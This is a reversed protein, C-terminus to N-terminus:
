DNESDMVMDTFTPIDKMEPYYEFADKYGTKDMDLAQAFVVAAEKMKGYKALCAAFRFRIEAADPLRKVGDALVSFGKEIDGKEMLVDSYDLWIDWGERGLDISKQYCLLAEEINGKKRLIDAKIYWCDTNNPAKELAKEIFQMALDPKNMEVLCVAIGCHIEFDSDKEMELAQKYYSLASAFDRKKEYCEGIFYYTTSDPKELPLTEQYSEIAEDYRGLEALAVAKNFCASSFKDNIALVYDYADIAQEFNQLISYFSGLAFWAFENYPDSKIVKKFFIIAEQPENLLEYCSSISTITLENEPNIAFAKKLWVLAHKFDNMSDYESAILTYSEEKFDDDLAAVKKLINIAIKSQNKLSFIQAKIILMEPSEPDFPEEDLIQMAKDLKGILM